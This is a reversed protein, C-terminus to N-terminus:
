SQCRCLSPQHESKKRSPGEDDDDDDGMAGRFMADLQASDKYRQMEEERAALITEREMEPMSELRRLTLLPGRCTKTSCPDAGKNVGNPEGQRIRTIKM